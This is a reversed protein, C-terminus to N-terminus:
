TAFDFVSDCEDWCIVDINELFKLDDKLIRAGLGQYCMVGIKNISEGWFSPNEWLLDANACSDAYQEIINDKLATTDV